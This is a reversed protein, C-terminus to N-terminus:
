EVFVVRSRPVGISVFKEEIHERQTDDTVVVRDFSIVFMELCDIVSHGLLKKGKHQDDAVAALEIATEQLSLFAIEALDTAGYFVVRRVGSRELTVFLAKLKQRAQRYYHYSFQIYRYTLRSKEAMGKPTIIYRIRKPPITTAKVYGKHALRKIFSNVLGLSINLDRALDRQSSLHEGTVRELIKLARIEQTKMFSL